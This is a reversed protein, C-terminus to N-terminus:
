ELIQSMWKKDYSSLTLLQVLDHNIIEVTLTDINILVDALKSKQNLILANSTGMVYYDIKKLDEFQQLPAYPAFVGGEGFIQLPFGAFDLVSNRDSTQFSTTMKLNKLM